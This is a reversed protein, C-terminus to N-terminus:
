AAVSQLAAAAEHPLLVAEGRISALTAQRLYEKPDLGNLKASEILSYFLAAVETGRQSKSGYHNKRGIVPGRMARETANNDLPIRADDVFHTLGKWLGRAYSMARGLGSEPLARTELLWSSIRAIVERSREHRLKGRLEDGPPGTPCSAEIAYLEGILDLMQKAIPFSEEVEIFKRRVHAWCHVLVFGGGNKALSEYVGYGDAMTVGAYDRLIERAASASRSDLIRYCVANPAAITWAQWRKSEGEKGDLMPWRTEDAGIVPQSLVYEHLREHAKGLRKALASIQDWLTQSDVLVGERAWIRAQRELPLHDLYKAIAVDLAVDISYRGGEILKEPGLATEIHSGCGCRYKKRKHKLLVFQRALTHIEDSEEFQDKWEELASGCEPCAMDAADLEHVVEVIPLEKQERPGHGKTTPRDKKEAGTGRKESSTGFLARNRTALQRELEAIRLQMDQVGKLAMVERQLEVIKKSMRENERELIKAAERLTTPDQIQDLRM